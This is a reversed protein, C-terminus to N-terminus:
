RSSIKALHPHIAEIREEIVEDEHGLRRMRRRFAKADGTGVFSEEARETARWFRDSMEKVGLHLSM